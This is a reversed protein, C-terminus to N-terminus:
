DAELSPNISECFEGIAVNQLNAQSRQMSVWSRNNMRYGYDLAADIEDRPVAPGDLQDDPVAMLYSFTFFPEFEVPFASRAAWLDDLGTPSLRMGVFWTWSNNITNCFEIAATHKRVLSPTGTYLITPEANCADAMQNFIAVTESYYTEDDLFTYLTQEDRIEELRNRHKSKLSESALMTDAFEETMAAPTGTPVAPDDNVLTQQGFAILTHCFDPTESYALPEDPGGPICATLLSLAVIVLTIIRPARSAM